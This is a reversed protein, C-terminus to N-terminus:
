IFLAVVGLIFCYVSFMWFKEKKVILNLLYVFIISLLLCTFFSIIIPYDFRPGKGIGLLFAGIALPIFLLFSFKVAKEKEAGLLLAASITIGSRSIGPFLALTQFIGILLANRVTLGSGAKSFRSIYLVVATFIYSIGILHPSSFAAEMSEKFLFGFVAAPITAIIIYSWMKMNEKNFNFLGALEKRVFIMVAALSSLHLMTFFFLDPKSFYNSFLALHGSSSIPLFETAAQIVALCIKNFM